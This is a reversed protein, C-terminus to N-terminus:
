PKARAEVILAILRDFEGKLIFRDNRCFDAAANAADRCHEVLKAVAADFGITQERMLAAVRALFPGTYAQHVIVSRWAPVVFIAQFGLGLAVFSGEPLGTEKGPIWWLYGHGAFLGPDGTSVHDKTIREVWDAPLVRQGQWDGKALYLQGIRAMDRASMRFMAARHQSLKPEHIYFFSVPSIDELGIRAAIGTKFAEAVTLGTRHEFITTLANYDWNNYAWKSGPENETHGLRRDVDRQMGGAAAAPHNIGSISKILHLVTAQRQRPTLPGAADDIGLEALTANLDIQRPGTGLHQGVLASLFAKRVSHVVYPKALDGLSRVIAGDTVIVLSDTSLTKAYDIVRDLRADDWGRTQAGSEKPSQAFADPSALLGLAAVAALAGARGFPHM